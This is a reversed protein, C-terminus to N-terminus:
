WGDTENITIVGEGIPDYRDSYAEIEIHTVTMNGHSPTLIVNWVDDTRTISYVPPTNFTNGTITSLSDATSGINQFYQSSSGDVRQRYFSFPTELYGVGNAYSMDKYALKVKGVIYDGNDDNGPVTVQFLTQGAVPININIARYQERGSNLIKSVKSTTATGQRYVTTTPTDIREVTGATIGVGTNFNVGPSSTPFPTDNVVLEGNSILRDFAWSSDGSEWPVFNAFNSRTVHAKGQDTVRIHSAVSTGGFVAPDQNWGYPKFNHQQGIVMINGGSVHIGPNMISKECGCGILTINDASTFRYATKSIADAACNIMTSYALGFIDYAFDARRVWCGTMTLTTGTGGGSGDDAFYFGRTTVGSWGDAPVGIALALNTEIKFPDVTVRDWRTLWSDHTFYGIKCSMLYLNEFHQQSARPAYIAYDTNRADDGQITLDYIGGEYTYSGDGHTMIIVANVAYSDVVAGGRSTNSGTGATTGSKKIRTLRGEGRLIKRSPIYIPTQVIYTGAPFYVADNADIAAQIAPADNTSGDGKAGYHKVSVYDVKPGVSVDSDNFKLLGDGGVSITSGGINLSNGSLYLDRWKKTPSGLDYASDAAPLISQVGTSLLTLVDADGGGIIQRAQVYDSDILAFVDASDLINPKGTLSGYAFDQPTQNTQVYTADILNFVTASDVGTGDLTVRAQVYASDVLSVVDVDGYTTQLGQIYSANIVAQVSTSDLYNTDNAFESLNSYTIQLGQVYSADVTSTIATSVDTTDVPVTTGDKITITGNMGAHTSCQYKYDGVVTIPIQWYLTGSQKGQASAGTTVVGSEDVHVLGTSFNTGGSTQIFFPHNEVDLSFAITTGSTAYLTPNNGTYQDGFLYSITGNATVDLETSAGFSPLASAAPINTLQSGDGVFAGATLTNTSPNYQLGDDTNVTVTGSTSETFLVSHSTDLSSPTVTTSTGTLQSGDGVFANARVTGTANINGEDVYVSETLGDVLLSGVQIGAAFAETLAGAVDSSDFPDFSQILDTFEIAKSTGDSKDVILFLDDDSPAQTLKPLQSVTKGSM